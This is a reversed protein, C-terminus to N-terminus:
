KEFNRRRIDIKKTDRWNLTARTDVEYRLFANSSLNKTLQDISDPVEAVQLKLLGEISSINKVRLVSIIVELDNLFKVNELDAEFLPEVGDGIGIEVFRLSPSAKLFNNLNENERVVDQGRFNFILKELSQPATFSDISVHFNGAVVVERLNPFYNLVRFDFPSTSNKNHRIRMGVVKKPDHFCKNGLISANLPRGNAIDDYYWASIDKVANSECFDKLNEPSFDYESVFSDDPFNSLFSKTQDESRSSTINRDVTYCTISSYPSKSQDFPTFLIRGGKEGEGCSDADPVIKALGVSFGQPAIDNNSTSVSSDDKQPGCSVMLLITLRLYFKMPM